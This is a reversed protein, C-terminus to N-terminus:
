TEVLAPYADAREVFEGTFGARLKAARPALDSIKTWGHREADAQRVTIAYTNNFGLPALWEANYQTRYADRVVDLVDAPDALADRGLVATLGTGTYEAYLDIEDKALAGHCIMTGGLCFRRDVSLDTHGEIMEAMMHGLLLQETFNKSGIRIDAQV